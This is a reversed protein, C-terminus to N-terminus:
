FTHCLGLWRLLDSLVILHVILYEPRGLRGRAPYKRDLTISEFVLVEDQRKWLSVAMSGRCCQEFLRPQSLRHDEDVCRVSVPRGTMADKDSGDFRPLSSYGIHTRPASLKIFKSGARKKDAGEEMKRSVGPQPTYSLNLFLSSSNVHLQLALLYALSPALSTPQLYLCGPHLRNLYFCHQKTNVAM